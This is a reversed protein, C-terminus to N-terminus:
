AGERAYGTAAIEAGDALAELYWWGISPFGGRRALKVYEAVYALDFTPVVPLLPRLQELGPGPGVGGLFARNYAAQPTLGETQAYIEPLVGACYGAWLSWAFGPLVSPDGWTCFAPRLHDLTAHLGLLTRSTVTPAANWETMFPEFLLPQDPAHRDRAEVADACIGPWAPGTADVPYVVLWPVCAIGLAGLAAAAQQWTSQWPQVTQGDSFKLWVGALGAAKAAAALDPSWDVCYAWQGPLYVVGNLLSM